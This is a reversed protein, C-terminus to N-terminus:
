LRMIALPMLGIASFKVSYEISIRIFEWSQNALIDEVMQRGLLTSFNHYCILFSVYPYSRLHLLLISAVKLERFRSQKGKNEKTDEIPM